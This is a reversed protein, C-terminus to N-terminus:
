NNEFLWDVAARDDPSNGNDYPAGGVGGAVPFDEPDEDDFVSWGFDVLYLRGNKVLINNLGIDRNNVGAEELEDLIIGMEERYGEELDGIRRGCYTMEIYNEGLDLLKPFHDFKELRRFAKAEREGMWERGEKYEKRIRNRGTRFVWSTVGEWKIIPRSCIFIDRRMWGGAPGINKISRYPTCEHLWREIDKQTAGRIAAMGDDAASEFVLEDANMSAMYLLDKGKELGVQKVLWMWHSLWVLVDVRPMRNQIWDENIDACEFSVNNMGLYHAAENAVDISATDYDVGHVDSAGKKAIGFSIGGVSCGLDLVRKGAFDIKSCIKNVRDATKSRHNKFQSLGGYPLDHYLTGKELSSGPIKKSGVRSVADKLKSFNGNM